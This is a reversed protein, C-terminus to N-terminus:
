VLLAIIEEKVKALVTPTLNSEQPCVYVDWHKSFATALMPLDLKEYANGRPDGAVWLEVLKRRREGIAPYHTLLTKHTGVCFRAINLQDDLSPRDNVKGTNYYKAPQVLSLPSPGTLETRDETKVKMGTYQIYNCRLRNTVFDSLKIKADFPKPNAVFTGHSRVGEGGNEISSVFGNLEDVASYSDGEQLGLERAFVNEHTLWQSPPRTQIASVVVQFVVM